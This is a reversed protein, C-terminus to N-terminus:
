GEAQREFVRINAESRVKYAEADAGWKYVTEYGNEGGRNLLDIKGVIRYDKVIENLGQMVRRPSKPTMKWSSAINTFVLFRPKKEAVTRVMEQQMKLNDEHLATMYYMVVQPTVSRCGSYYMIQPESGFVAIQDDPGTRGALYSGIEVSEPFPNAGYYERPLDYRLAQESPGFFYDAHAAAGTLLFAAALGAPVWALAAPKQNARAADAAYGCLAGASLAVAPLVSIFYHQTFYYGPVVTLFSGAGFVLLLYRYRGGVGRFWSAVAGAAGLLWLAAFGEVAAGFNQRFMQSGQSGSVQGVFKGAFEFTWFWFADFKGAAAYWLATLLFPALAAGGLVFARQFFTKLDIEKLAAYQLFIYLIAFPTFFVGPQKMLFAAGYALGSLGWFLLGKREAAELQLALGLAAFLAVFFTAHGAFGYLAPSASMIGFVGAAVLGAADGALRRGVFFLAAMTGLVAALAALHPAAVTAGFVGIFLAYVLYTGPLKQTFATTYPGGGRLMEQAIYAFEGEDRELPMNMHQLRLGAVLLLLAALAVRAYTSSRGSAPPPTQRKAAPEPPAPRSQAPSKRQKKAM